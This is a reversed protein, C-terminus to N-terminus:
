RLLVGLTVNVTEKGNGALTTILVIDTAPRRNKKKLVLKVALATHESKSARLIEADDENKSGDPGSTRLREAGIAAASALDKTVQLMGPKVFAPFDAAVLLTLMDIKLADPAGIWVCGDIKNGSSMDRVTTELKDGVVCGDVACILTDTYPVFMPTESQLLPARIPAVGQTDVLHRLSVSTKHRVDLLTPKINNTTADTSIFRPSSVPAKEKM